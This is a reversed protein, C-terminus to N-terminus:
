GTPGATEAREVHELMRYVRLAAFFDDTEHLEGRDDRFMDIYNDRNMGPHTAEFVRVRERVEEATVARRTITAATKMDGTYRARGNRGSNDVIRLVVGRM